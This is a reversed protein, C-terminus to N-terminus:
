PQDLLARLDEATFIKEQFITVTDAWVTVGGNWYVRPDVFNDQGPIAPPLVFRETFDQYVGPQAFDATSIVGRNLAGIPGTNLDWSLLASPPAPLQGLKLRFIARYAGPPLTRLYLGGVLNGRRTTFKPNAIVAFGSATDDDAVRRFLTHDFAGDPVPYVWTKGGPPPIEPWPRVQVRGFWATSARAKEDCYLRFAITLFAARAPARYLACLFRWDPVAGYSLGAGGDGVPKKDADLWTLGYQLTVGAYLDSDSFGESRYYFTVLYLQGGAVPAPASVANAAAPGAPLRLRLCPGAPPPLTPGAVVSAGLNKADNVSGSWGTPGAAFDGNPLVSPSFQAGAGGGTVLLLTALLTLNRRM